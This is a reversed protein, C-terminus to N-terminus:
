LPAHKAPTTRRDLKSRLTAAYSVYFMLVIDESYHGVDRPKRELRHQTFLEHIAPVIPLSWTLVRRELTLTQTMVGKDNPM